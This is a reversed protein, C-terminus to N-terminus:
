SCGDARRVPRARSRGVGDLVCLRVCLASPPLPACVEAQSIRGDGDVDCERFFEIARLSVAELAHWLATMLENPAIRGPKHRDLTTMRESMHGQMQKLLTPAGENDDCTLKKVRGAPTEAPAQGRKKLMRRHVSPANAGAGSRLMSNLEAYTISGDDDQDILGFLEDALTDSGGFGMAHVVKRFEERTLANSRDADWKQFLDIVRQSSRALAQGRTLEFLALPTM